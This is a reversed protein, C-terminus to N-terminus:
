VCKIEPSRIEVESIVSRWDLSNSNRKVAAEGDFEALNERRLPLRVDVTLPPFDTMSLSPSLVSQSASTDHGREHRIWGRQM